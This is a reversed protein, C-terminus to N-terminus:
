LAECRWKSLICCCMVHIMLETNLSKIQVKRQRYHIGNVADTRWSINVLNFVFRNLSDMVRKKQTIHHNAASLM